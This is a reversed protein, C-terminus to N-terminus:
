WGRRKLCRLAGKKGKGASEGSRAKALKEEFKRAAQDYHDVTFANAGAYGAMAGTITGFLVVGVVTAGVTAALLVYHDGYPYLGTWQWIIVRLVGVLGLYSPKIPLALVQGTVHELVSNSFVLAVSADPLGTVTADAPAHYEIGAAKLVEIARLWQEDAILDKAQEM